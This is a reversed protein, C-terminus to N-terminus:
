SRETRYDRPCVGTYQRFIRSFYQPSDFQLEAAIDTINKETTRLLFESREIKRRLYFHMVSEGYAERFIASLRSKGYHFRRCLEEMAIKDCLHEELYKRIDDAVRSEMEKRSTFLRTKESAAETRLIGILLQELYLQIMQPGGIPADTRLTLPMGHEEFCGHREELIRDILPRSEASILIPRGALGVLVPSTSEFSIIFFDLPNKGDGCLAHEVGPAHLVAEGASLTMEREASQAILRGRLPCVLEWFDHAEPASAYDRAPTDTFCTIIKKVRVLNTLPVRIYKM